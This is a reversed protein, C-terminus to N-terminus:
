VLEVRESNNIFDTFPKATEESIAACFDKHVVFRVNPLVRLGDKVTEAVCYDYAIGGVHIEDIDYANVLAIIRDRSKENKFVSYEEHDEDLGKTFVKFNPCGHLVDLLPQYIAADESFQECHPNWTGGNINFSCHTHPHWDVTAGVVAYENKNEKLHEAQLDGCKKGGAVALNGGEKFRKKTDIAIYMKAM